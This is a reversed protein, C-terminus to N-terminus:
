HKASLMTRFQELRVFLKDMSEGKALSVFAELLPYMSAFTGAYAFGMEEWAEDSVEQVKKINPLEIPLAAFSLSMKGDHYPFAYEWIDKIEECAIIKSKRADFVCPLFDRVAKWHELFFRQVAIVYEDGYEGSYFPDFRTWTTGQGEFLGEHFFLFSPPIDYSHDGSLHPYGGKLMKGHLGCYAERSNEHFKDRFTLTQPHQSPYERRQMSDNVEIGYIAHIMDEASDLMSDLIPLVEYHVGALYKEKDEIQFFNHRDATFFM